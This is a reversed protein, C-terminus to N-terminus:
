FVKSLEMWLRTSREAAVLPPQPGTPRAVFSRFNWRDPGSWNLGLGAGRLAAHNASATWSRRNITVDENDFFATAQWQGWLATGLDRRVEATVLTANDGSVTSVDYARVSGNGGASMKEASDLNDRALQRSVSLYLTTSPALAQLRTWTANWKSFGGQTTASIADIAKATPDKFDVRGATWTLNWANLAPSLLTDRWDGSLALWGNELDRDTHTASVEVADRLRKSDFQLQAYISAAPSRLLPHRIWASQVEASGHANLVALNRGLQYRLSSWAAGIRTGDGNALLHYAVRGYQMGKGSTLGNLTFIDGRRALNIFNLSSNLRERGTYRSGYDDLSIEGYAPPTPSVEVVLDSTGTEQGPKLTAGTAMGPIDSLLLLRKDLRRQAIPQGPRLPALTDELLASSVPGHNDLLIRGY